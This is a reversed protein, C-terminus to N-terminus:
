AAVVGDTIEDDPRYVATGAYPSGCVVEQLGSARAGALRLYQRAAALAIDPHNSNESIHALVLCRLDPHAIDFLLQGAEDNSIHGHTSSIRQKLEWPYDCTQLMELDHNSELVLGHAGRTMHQVLPTVRGLDTVQVFVMGEGEIRFGVPDTADHIISFPDARFTGFSISEGTVFTEYGYANKVAQLTGENGFVPVKFRRSFTPVGAIHDSHEHTLLIFKVSAPDIGVAQMRLAAQRASLGCDILFATGGV